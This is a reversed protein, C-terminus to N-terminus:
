AFRGAATEAGTFFASATGPFCFQTSISGRAAFLLYGHLCAPNVPKIIQLFGYRRSNKFPRFIGPLNQRLDLIKDDLQSVAKRFVTILFPPFVDPDRFARFHSGRGAQVAREDDILIRLHAVTGKHPAAGDHSLSRHDAIGCLQFVHNEEIFYLHRVVIIHSVADKTIFGM